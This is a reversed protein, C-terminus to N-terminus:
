GGQDRPFNPANRAALGNESPSTLRPVVLRAESMTGETVELDLAEVLLGLRVAMAGREAVVDIRWRGARRAL